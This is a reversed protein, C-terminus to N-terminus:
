FPPLEMFWTTSLYLSGYSFVSVYQFVNIHFFVFAVLFFHFVDDRVHLLVHCCEHLWEM